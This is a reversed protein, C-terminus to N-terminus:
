DTLNAAALDSDRPASGDASQELHDRAARAFVELVMGMKGELKARMPLAEDKLRFRAEGVLRSSGPQMSEVEWHNRVSEFMPPLGEIMEYALARAAPDFRVLKQTVTGLSPAENTRLVGEALPGELTSRDIGPAWQDWDAFGDGLLSWVAQAPAAIEIHTKVNLENPSNM